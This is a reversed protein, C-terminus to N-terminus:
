TVKLQSYIILRISILSIIQILYSFLFADNNNNNSNNVLYLYKCMESLFFSEMRDEKEKTLVDHLTAYGCRGILLIGYRVCVCVSERERM